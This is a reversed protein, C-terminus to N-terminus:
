EVLLRGIKELTSIGRIDHPLLPIYVRPLKAFEREIERLYESEQQRRTQWFYNEGTEPMVRNIVAAAV